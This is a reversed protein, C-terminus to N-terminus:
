TKGDDIGGGAETTTKKIYQSTQSSCPSLYMSHNTINKLM